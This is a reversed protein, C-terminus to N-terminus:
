TVQDSILNGESQTHEVRLGASLSWMPHLKIDSTLYAATVKELYNFENSALDNKVDEGNIVDYVTFQNETNIQAYKL